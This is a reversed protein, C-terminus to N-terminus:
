CSTLTAWVRLRVHVPTNATVNQNSLRIRVYEHLGASESEDGKIEFTARGSIKTRTDIDEPTAMMSRWTTEGVPNCSEPSDSTEFDLTVGDFTATMPVAYAEFTFRAFRAGNTKLYHEPSTFYEFVTFPATMVDNSDLMVNIDEWLFSRNGNM